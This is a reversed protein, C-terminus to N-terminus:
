GSLIPLIVLCPYLWLFQHLWLPKVKMSSRCRNDDDFFWWFVKTVFQITALTITFSFLDLLILLSIFVFYRQSNQRCAVSCLFSVASKTVNVSSIRLPFSWKKHLAVHIFVWFVDLFAFLCFLSKHQFEKHTLSMKWTNKNLMLLIWKWYVEPYQTKQYTINTFISVIQFKNSGSLFVVLVSHVPASM